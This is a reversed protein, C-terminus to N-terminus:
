FKCLACTLTNWWDVDDCLHRVGVWRELFKQFPEGRLHNFIEEIYPQALDDYLKITPRSSSSESLAPHCHNSSLRFPHRLFARPLCLPLCVSCLTNTSSSMMHCYYYCLFVFGFLRPHRICLCANNSRFYKGRILKGSSRKEYSIKSRPGRSRELIGPVFFISIPKTQPTNITRPHRLSFVRTASM